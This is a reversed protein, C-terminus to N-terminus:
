KKEPPMWEDPLVGRLESYPVVVDMERGESGMGVDVRAKVGEKTLAAPCSPTEVHGAADLEVHKDALTRGPVDALQALIAQDLLDAFRPTKAAWEDIDFAAGTRANVAIGSFLPPRGQM